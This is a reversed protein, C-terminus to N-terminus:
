LLLTNQRMKSTKSFNLKLISKKEKGRAHAANKFDFDFNLSEINKHESSNYFHTKGTTQRRIM